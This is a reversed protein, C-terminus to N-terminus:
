SWTSNSYLNNENRLEVVENEMRRHNEILEQNQLRLAEIDERQGAISALLAKLLADTDGVPVFLPSADQALPTPDLVMTVKGRGAGLQLIKGEEKLISVMNQIESPLPAQYQGGEEAAAEACQNFFKTAEAVPGGALASVDDDKIRLKALKKVTSEVAAVGGGNAQYAAAVAVKWMPSSQRVYYTLLSNSKERLDIPM